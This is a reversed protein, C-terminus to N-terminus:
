SSSRRRRGQNVREAVREEAARMRQKLSSLDRRIDEAFANREGKGEPVARRRPTKASM